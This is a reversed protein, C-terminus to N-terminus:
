TVGRLLQQMAWEIQQYGKTGEMQPPMMALATELRRYAEAQTETMTVKRLKTRSQGSGASTTAYEATAKAKERNALDIAAGEATTGGTAWNIIQGLPGLLNWWVDSGAAIPPLATQRVQQKYAEALIYQAALEQGAPSLGALDQETEIAERIQEKVTKESVGNTLTSTKFMDMFGSVGGFIKFAGLGAFILIAAGIADTIKM